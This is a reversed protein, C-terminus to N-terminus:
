SLIKRRLHMPCPSHLSGAKEHNDNHDTKRYHKEM